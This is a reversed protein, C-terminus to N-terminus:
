IIYKRIIHEPSGSHYHEKRTTIAVCNHECAGNLAIYNGFRKFYFGSFHEEPTNKRKNMTQEETSWSITSINIGRGVQWSEQEQVQFYWLRNDNEGWPFDKPQRQPSGSPVSKKLPVRKGASDESYGNHIVFLGM